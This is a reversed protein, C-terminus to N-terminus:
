WNQLGSSTSPTCVGHEYTTSSARPGGVAVVNAPLNKVVIAGEGVDIGSARGSRWSPAIYAEPWCSGCCGSSARCRQRWHYGQAAVVGGGLWVDKRLLIPQATEMQCLPDRSSPHMATLLQVNPGIQEEQGIPIRAVHLAVLCSNPSLRAGDHTRPLPPRRTQQLEKLLEILLGTPENGVMQDPCEGVLQAHDGVSPMLDASVAIQVLVRFLV